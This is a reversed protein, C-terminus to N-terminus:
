HPISEEYQQSFWAALGQPLLVERSFTRESFLKLAPEYGEFLM